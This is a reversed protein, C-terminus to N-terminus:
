ETTLFINAKISNISFKNSLKKDFKEYKKTFLVDDVKIKGLTSIVKTNTKKLNAYVNGAYLKIEADEKIDHLKLIGKEIFIALSGAYSKSEINISEGFFTVKKGKPVKIIANARKLRKTIYKRFVTEESKFNDFSFEIKVVKYEEKFIIHQKNPNEAILTIEIFESDSNELVFDDLGITSIEIENLQSQFKQIVKKQSFAVVSVLLFFLLIRSQVKVSM